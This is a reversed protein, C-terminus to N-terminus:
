IRFPRIEFIDRLDEQIRDYVAKRITCPEDFFASLVSRTISVHMSTTWRGYRKLKELWQDMLEYPNESSPSPFGPVQQNLAVIVENNRGNELPEFYFACSGLGERDRGPEPREIEAVARVPLMRYFVLRQCLQSFCLEVMESYGDLLNKFYLEVYQVMTEDTYFQTVWNSDVPVRDYEPLVPDGIVTYGSEALLELRLYLDHLRIHQGRAGVTVQRSGYRQLLEDIQTLILSVEAPVTLSLIRERALDCVEARTHEYILRPPEPLGMNRILDKLERWIDGIAAKHAGAIGVEGSSLGRRTMSYLIGMDSLSGMTTAVPFERLLRVKGGLREETSYGYSIWAGGESSFSGVIAPTAGKGFRTNPALTGRVAPLWREVARSRVELIESLMLRGLEEDSLAPAPTLGSLASSLCRTYVYLDADLVEFLFRSTESSDDFLASAFVLVPEWSPKSVLETISENNRIRDIILQSALYERFSAHWFAYRSAEKKIMGSSVLESLLDVSSFDVREDLIVDHLQSIMEHESISYKSGTQMYVALKTLARKKWEADVRAGRAKEWRTFLFDIYKLYVDALSAPECGEAIINAIFGLTLPHKSLERLPTPWSYFRGPSFKRGSFQTMYEIIDADQLPELYAIPFGLNATYVTARCAVIMKVNEHSGAISKMQNVRDPLNGPPVEDLGDFLLIVSFSDLMTKVMSTEFGFGYEKFVEVIHSILSGERWNKMDVYIPLLRAEAQDVASRCLRTTLNLLETTKGSGAAGLIVIRKHESLIADITERSGSQLRAKMPIYFRSVHHLSDPVLRLYHTVEAEFSANARTLLQQAYERLLEALGTDSLAKMVEPNARQLQHDEVLRRFFGDLSSRVLEGVDSADRFVAYKSRKKILDLLQEAETSRSVSRVFALVPKNLRVAEDYEKIVADAVESGLILIFLHCDNVGRLYYEDTALDSAPTHEFAWPTTPSYDRITDIVESRESSLDEIATNQVSSIFARVRETPQSM